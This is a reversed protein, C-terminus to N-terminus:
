SATIVGAGVVILAAFTALRGLSTGVVGAFVFVGVTWRSLGALPNGGHFLFLSLWYLSSDVVVVVLSAQPASGGSAM